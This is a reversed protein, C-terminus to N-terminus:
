AFGIVLIKKLHRPLRSALILNKRKEDIRALVEMM